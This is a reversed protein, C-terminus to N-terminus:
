LDEKQTLINSIFQGLISTVNKLEWYPITLLPLNRKQCFRVKASDRRKVLQLNKKQTEISDSKSGFSGLLYHQKGQYEVLGKLKQNEFIAFDFPLERKLICGRMRHEKAFMIGKSELVRRIASEGRSEQCKQCGAGAYHTNPKQLFDGHIKCTICINTTINKYKSKKYSFRNGHVSQAKKIFHSTDLLLSDNARKRGCEFCGIGLLHASALQQFRGHKKCTIWVKTRSNVYKTERYDYQNKHRKKANRIFNETTMRRATKMASFGCKICGDGNLHRNPTQQFMGHISCKINVKEKSQTYVVASYDYRDKHIATAKQIFEETSLRRM